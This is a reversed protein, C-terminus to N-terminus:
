QNGRDNQDPSNGAPWESRPVICYHFKLLRSKELFESFQFPVKLCTSVGAGYAEDILADHNQGILGIVRCGLNRCELWKLFEWSWKEELEIMLICISGQQLICKRAREPDDAMEIPNLLHGERLVRAIALGKEEDGTAILITENKAM